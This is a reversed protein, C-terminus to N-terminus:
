NKKNNEKRKKKELKLNGKKKTLYQFAEHIERERLLLYVNFM